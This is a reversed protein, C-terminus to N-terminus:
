TESAFPEPEVGFSKWAAAVVAGTGIARYRWTGPCTVTITQTWVAAEVPTPAEYLSRHGEGDITEFAVDTPEAKAEAANRFTGTLIVEQGVFYRGTSM